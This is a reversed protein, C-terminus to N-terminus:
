EDAEPFHKPPNVRSAVSAKPLLPKANEAEMSTSSEGEPHISADYPPMPPTRITIPEFIPDINADGVSVQLDVGHM